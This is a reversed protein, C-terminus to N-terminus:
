AKQKEEWAFGGFIRLIRYGVEIKWKPDGFDEQAEKYLLDCVKRSFRQQQYLLDHMFGAPGNSGQLPHGTLWWAVKPISSGDCIFGKPILIEGLVHKSGYYVLDKDL